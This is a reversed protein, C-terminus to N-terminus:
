ALVLRFLLLIYGSHVLDIIIVIIIAMAGLVVLLLLEDYVLLKLGLLYTICFNTRIYM